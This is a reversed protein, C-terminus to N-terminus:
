RVLQGRAPRPGAAPGPLHRARGHGRGRGRRRAAHLLRATAVTPGDAAPESFFMLVIVRIYFFAAVVSAVCRRGRGALAGGATWAAAFVAWKGIFGSTLPIGAFRAPVARLRVAVLPSRRGLGAWSRCTPRRAARTASWRSWPSRASRRRLRLGALYFLVGSLDRGRDGTAASRRRVGTLMFGAHAISSYALMRKVDTQTIALVSASWWPSRRRRDVDAAALGLPRRRPRRLVGAAARRVRRDQHLRGHLRHGATPAGQYVDPTWAHFPVAGFKFLLGVALLAWGPSCCATRASGARWRPPSTASLEFPAPTATSCRRHRLPLVGLVFAGLLFYKM